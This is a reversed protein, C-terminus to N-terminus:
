NVPPQYSGNVDGAALCRWALNNYNGGAVTQLSNVEWIWDGSPLSNITNTFRRSVLLADTANV